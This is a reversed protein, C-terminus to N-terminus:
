EFNISFSGLNRDIKIDDQDVRQIFENSLYFIIEKRIYILFNVLEKVSKISRNLVIDSVTIDINKYIKGFSSGRFVMIEITNKDNIPQFTDVFKVYHPVKLIDTINDTNLLDTNWIHIANFPRMRVLGVNLLLKRVTPFVCAQGNIRYRKANNAYLLAFNNSNHFVNLNGIEKRFELVREKPISNGWGYLGDKIIRTYFREFLLRTM